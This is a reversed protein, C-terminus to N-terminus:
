GAKKAPKQTLARAFDQYQAERRRLESLGVLQNFTEFDPLKAAISTTTGERALTGLYDTLAQAVAYTAGVPFAVAAFGVAELEAATLFPSKGGEIMNALQPGDIERCIRRMSEIDAPAEVFIMDVGVARYLQARRIAEDLGLVAAADTRACIVLEGDVRADLASKLKAVMEEAPIVDKGAMHGCRKPFVQDEIFLGAVGAREYARVTRAVNTVNGFGTDGDAFLPLATAEGLRAYNDAMESLSLLSTDPAGLLTATAGYGGCTVASFGVREAIRAGLADHVGPLVLIEKSDLLRRFQTTRKM